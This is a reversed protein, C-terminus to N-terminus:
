RLGGSSTSDYIWSVPWASQSATATMSIMLPILIIFTSVLIACKCLSDHLRSMSELFKTPLLLNEAKTMPSKLKSSTFPEPLCSYGVLSKVTLLHHLVFTAFCLKLEHSSKM